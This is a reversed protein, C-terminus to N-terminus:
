LAIRFDTTLGPPKKINKGHIFYLVFYELTAVQM